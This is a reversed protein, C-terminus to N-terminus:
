VWPSQDGRPTLEPTWGLTTGTGRPQLLLECPSMDRFCPVQGRARPIAPCFTGLPTAGPLEQPQNRPATTSGPPSRHMSQQTWNQVWARIGPHHACFAQRPRLHSHGHRDAQTPLCLWSLAPARWLGMCPGSQSGSWKCHPQLPDSSPGAGPLMAVPGIRECPQSVPEPSQWVRYPGHGHPAGLNRHTLAATHPQNTRWPAAALSLAKHSHWRPQPHPVGGVGQPGPEAHTLPVQLSLLAPILTAKPPLQIWM